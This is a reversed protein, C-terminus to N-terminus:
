IPPCSNSLIRQTLFSLGTLLKAQVMLTFIKCHTLNYIKFYEDYGFAPRLVAKIGIGDSVWRDILLTILHDLM